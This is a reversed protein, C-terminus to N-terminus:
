ILIGKFFGNENVIKLESSDFQLMHDTKLLKRPLRICYGNCKWGKMKVFALM